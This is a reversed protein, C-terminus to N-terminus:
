EGLRHLITFFLLLIILLLPLLPPSLSFNLSAFIHKFDVKLDGFKAAAWVTPKGKQYSPDWSRLDLAPKGEVAEIGKTADASATPFTTEEEAEGDTDGEGGRLRPKSSGAISRWLVNRPDQEFCLCDQSGVTIPCNFSGLHHQGLGAPATPELLAESGMALILLLWLGGGRMLREPWM